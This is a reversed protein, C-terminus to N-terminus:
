CSYAASCDLKDEDRMLIGMCGWSFYGDACCMDHDYCMKNLCCNGCIWDWCECMSGCLGTCDDGLPCAGAPCSANSNSCFEERVTEKINNHIEAENAQTAANETESLQHMLNQVRLALVYLLLAAPSDQGTVGTSTALAKATDVLLQAERSALLQTIADSRTSNANDEDLLNQLRWLLRDHKLAPEFLHHAQKPVLFQKKNSSGSGEQWLIFHNDLLSIGLPSSLSHQQTALLKKGELTHIALSQGEGSSQIDIHLGEEEEEEEAEARKIISYSGKIRHPTLETLSLRGGQEDTATHQQSRALYLWLSWWLVVLIGKM